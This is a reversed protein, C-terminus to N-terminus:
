ATTIFAGMRGTRENQARHSFYLEPSSATCEGCVTIRAALVGVNVLRRVAVGALDVRPRGDAHPQTDPAFLAAVEAGVAFSETGICAGIAVHLHAPNSGFSEVMTEITNELVNAALGRWGGHAIGVVGRVSDAFFVPVCDAFFLALLLDPTNTVLADVGPIADAYVTAGRGADAGRVVAVAGSHVQEACVMHGLDWGFYAAIRARNELVLGVDDGVHLGLNLSGFPAVSVGGTRRSFGHRVGPLTSLTPACWFDLLPSLPM